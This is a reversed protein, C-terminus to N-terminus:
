IAIAYEDTVLKAEMTSNTKVILKDNVNDFVVKFYNLDDKQSTGIRLNERSTLLAFNPNERPNNGGGGNLEPIQKIATDIERHVIIKVGRFSINEKNWLPVHQILKTDYIKECYGAARDTKENLWNVFPKAMYNSMKILQNSPDYWPEDSVSDILNNLTDFVKEGTMLQDKYSTALNENIDVKLGGGAQAQVLYGNQKNLYPAKKSEDALYANRWQAALLNEKIKNILFAMYIIGKDNEQPNYIKFTGYFAAFEDDFKKTCFEYQCGFQKLRWEKSSYNLDLSCSNYECNNEDMYSNSTYDAESTIIQIKEGTKVGTQIYHSTTLNSVGYSKTFIAKSITSSNGAVIGQITEAFENFNSEFTTNM